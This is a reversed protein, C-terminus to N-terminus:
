IEGFKEIRPKKYARSLQIDRAELDEKVNDM